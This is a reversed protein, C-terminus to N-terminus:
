HTDANSLSKNKRVEYILFAWKDSTYRMFVFFGCVFVCQRGFMGARGGDARQRRLLNCGGEISRIGLRALSTLGVSDKKYRGIEPIIRLMVPYTATMGTFYIALSAASIKKKKKPKVEM